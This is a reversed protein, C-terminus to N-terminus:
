LTGLIALKASASQSFLWDSDSIHCTAMAHSVVFPTPGCLPSLNTGRDQYWFEERARMIGGFCCPLCTSGAHRSRSVFRSNRFLFYHCRWKLVMYFLLSCLPSSSSLCHSPTCESAFPRSQARAHSVPSATGHSLFIPIRDIQSTSSASESSM